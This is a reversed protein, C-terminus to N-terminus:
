NTATHATLIHLWKLNAMKFKLNESNLAENM